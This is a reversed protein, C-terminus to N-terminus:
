FCYSCYSCYPVTLFCCPFMLLFRLPFGCPPLGGRMNHHSCGGGHLLTPSTWAWEVCKLRGKIILKLISSLHPSKVHPSHAVRKKTHKKWKKNQKIKPRKPKQSTQHQRANQTKQSGQKNFNCRRAARADVSAIAM